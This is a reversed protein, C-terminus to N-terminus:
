SNVRRGRVKGKFSKLPGKTKQLRVAENPLDHTGAAESFGHGPAAIM